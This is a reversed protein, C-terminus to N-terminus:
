GRSWWPFGKTVDRISQKEEDKQTDKMQPSARLRRLRHEIGGESETAESNRRSLDSHSLLHRDNERKRLVHTM